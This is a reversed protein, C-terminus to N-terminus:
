CSIEMEIADPTLIMLCMVTNCQEVNLLAGKSVLRYERGRRIMALAMDNEAKPDSSSDIPQPSM